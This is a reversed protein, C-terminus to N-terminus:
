HKRNRNSVSAACSKGCYKRSLYNSKTLFTSHCEQCILEVMVIRGKGKNWSPKGHLSLGVKEAIAPNHMPNNNLFRERAVENPLGINWPVKGICSESIKKRTEISCPSGWVDGGSSLNYFSQDKVADYESIYHRELDNLEDYTEATALLSVKFSDVGYKALALKLLKGSGKYSQDFEVAAKQGIYRKGNTLNETIYVYGYM